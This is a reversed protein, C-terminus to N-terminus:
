NPAFYTSLIWFEPTTTTTCLNELSRTAVWFEPASPLLLALDM